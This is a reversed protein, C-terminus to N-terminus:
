IGAQHLAILVTMQETMLAAGVALMALRAPFAREGRPIFAQAAILLPGVAPWGVPWLHALSVAAGLLGGAWIPTRCIMTRWPLSATSAELRAAASQAFNAAGTEDPPRRYGRPHTEVQARAPARERPRANEALLQVRGRVHLKGYVHTLHTRVTAETLYLAEAIQATTKGLYVQELVRREAPTLSDPGARIHGEVVGVGRSDWAVRRGEVPDSGSMMLGEKVMRAWLNM